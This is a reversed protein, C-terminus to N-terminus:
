ISQKTAQYSWCEHQMLPYMLQVHISASNPPRANLPEHTLHASVAQHMCPNSNRTAGNGVYSGDALYYQYGVRQLGIWYITPYYSSM